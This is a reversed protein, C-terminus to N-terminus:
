SSTATFIPERRRRARKGRGRTFWGPMTAAVTGALLNRRLERKATLAPGIRAQLYDVLRARADALERGSPHDM